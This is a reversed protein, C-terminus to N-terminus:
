WLVVRGRGRGHHGASWQVLRRRHPSRGSPPSRRLACAREPTSARVMRAGARGVLARGSVVGARAERAVAPLRGAQCAGLEADGAGCRARSRGARCEKGAGRGRAGRAGDCGFSGCVRVAGRGRAGPVGDCGFSGCLPVERVVVRRRHPSRCSPPSRRLACAREPPLRACHLRAACPVTPTLRVPTLTAPTPTVLSPTAPTLTVPTLTVPSCTAPPHTAVTATPTAPRLPM